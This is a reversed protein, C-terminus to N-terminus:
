EDVEQSKNGGSNRRSGGSGSNGSSSTTSAADNHQQQQHNNAVLCRGFTSGGDSPGRQRKQSERLNLIAMRLKIRYGLPVTLEKLNDDDLLLFSEMDIENQRFLSYLNVLNLAALVDGVNRFRRIDWDIDNVSSTDLGGGLPGITSQGHQVRRPTQRSFAGAMGQPGTPSDLDSEELVSALGNQLAPGRRRLLGSDNGVGGGAGTGAEEEEQDKYRGGQGSGGRTGSGSSAAASALWDDTSALHKQVNQLFNPPLQSSESFGWGCFQANPHRTRSSAIDSCMARVALAQMSEHDKRGSGPARDFGNAKMAGNLVAACLPSSEPDPHVSNNGGTTSKKAITGRLPTSEAVPVVAGSNCSDHGDLASDCGGDDYKNGNEKTTAQNAGAHRLPPPTGAGSSLSSGIGTSRSDARLSSSVSQPQGNSFMIQHQQQAAIM